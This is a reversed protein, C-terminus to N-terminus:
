GCATAREENNSNKMTALSLQFDRAICGWTLMAEVIVRCLQLLPGFLALRGYPDSPWANIGFDRVL